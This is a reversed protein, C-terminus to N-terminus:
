KLYEIGFKRIMQACEVRSAFDDAALNGAKGTIMNVATAWQLAQKKWSSKMVAAGDAFTSLDKVATTDFGCYDAYGKLMKAIEARSINLEPGFSGDPKGDVIGNKNAWTVAKAYYKEPNVDPFKDEFTISPEGAMRYLVTVFMGRTLNKETDFRKSGNGNEGMIGANYTYKAADYRWGDKSGVDTFIWEKEMEYRITVVESDKLGDKIAIAKILMSKDVIIEGTYEKSSQSPTSGSTTYYIKAGETATTITVKQSSTFTGAEKSFVPAAVQTEAPAPIEIGYRVENVMSDEMGEKVAFTKITTTETITFPGTYETSERTPESGDLTYYITAGETATTIEISQAGEYAGGPLNFVPIIVAEPVEPDEPTESGNGQTSQSIESEAGSGVQNVARVLFTYASDAELGTFTYTLANRVHVWTVGDDMSVEYRDVTGEAATWRLTVSDTGAEATLGSVEGPVTIGSKILDNVAGTYKNLEDQSLVEDTITVFAIGGVYQLESAGNKQNAGITMVSLNPNKGIFGNMDNRNYTLATNGNRATYANNGTGTYLTNVYGFTSWEGMPAANAWNGKLGHAADLRITTGDQYAVFGTNGGLDGSSAVNANAQKVTFLVKRGSTPEPKYSIIFTGEMVGSISAIDSASAVEMRSGDFTIDGSELFSIHYQREAANKQVAEIGTLYIDTLPESMETESGNVAEVKYWRQVGVGVSEDVHVYANKAETTTITTIKSYQGNETNSRYINYSAAKEESADIQISYSNYRAEARYNGACADEYARIATILTNLVAEKEATTGQLKGRAAQLATALATSEASGVPLAADALLKEAQRIRDELQNSRKYGALAAQLQTLANDLEASTGAAYKQKAATLAADLATAAPNNSPFGQKEKINEVETIKRSMKQELDYAWQYEEIATGLDAIIAELDAADATELKQHGEEIKTDLTDDEGREAHLPSDTRLNGAQTLVEALSGDLDHVRQYEAMTQELTQILKYVDDASKENISDDRVDEATTIAATLEQAATRADILWNNDKLANAEDIKTNLEEMLNDSNTYEEMAQELAKAADLVAQADDSEALAEAATIKEELAVAAVHDEALEGAELFEQAETAKADLEDKMWAAAGEAFGWNVMEKLYVTMVANAKEESDVIYPTEKSGIGMFAIEYKDSTLQEMGIPVYIMDYSPNGEEYFFGLKGDEQQTFTSYASDQTQVMLFKDNGWGQVYAQPTTDTETLEKYFIGVGQRNGTTPISQLAMHVYNETEKNKAFLVYTEGDTGRTSGLPLTAQTGWSGGTYSADGKDYTFVNIYRGNDKRSAIVVNGNPLEEVKPEDAPAIPAIEVGGLVNWKKGFDDTYIVWNEHQGRDSTSRTSIACYVRYHSGVKIYRSQMIRGSGVFLSPWSEDMDYIQDTITEPPLFSQGGDNSIFQFVQQKNERTSSFFGQTGGATLMLVADSERDAVIAADGFGTNKGATLTGTLDQADSWTEGNNESTKVLIDIRHGGLDGAHGWRKDSVAILRGDNATAFAPIRYYITQGQDVDTTEWLVQAGPLRVYEAAQVPLGQMGSMATGAACLLATLTARWKNKKM